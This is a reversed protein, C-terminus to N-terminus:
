IFIKISVGYRGYGSEDPPCILVRFRRLYRQLFLSIVRTERM